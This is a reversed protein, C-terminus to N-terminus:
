GMVEVSLPPAVNVLDMRVGVACRCQITDYGPASPDGPYLLANGGGSVFPTELGRVVQGHMSAHSTKGSTSEITRVREDGATNWERVLQDNSLHGEEVAQRFMARVGGNAARMGETRGIVEARHKRYRERYREVMNDIQKKSLPKGDRLAARVSSDFRRDRLARQLAEPNNQQLLRRYNNVAGVQKRTLGISNRFERAQDIPNLGQRVGETMAERIAQRQQESIERVLRLQNEEIERVASRNVTNFDVVVEGKSVKRLAAEIDEATTVAANTYERTWAVAFRRSNAVVIATADEVRGAAILAALEKITRSDRMSSVVALWALSLRSEAADALARIEDPKM